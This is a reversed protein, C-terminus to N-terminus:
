EVFAIVGLVLAYAPILYGLARNPLIRVLYPSLISALASGALVSPLLQFDISVGASGLALFAIFGAMSTAGEALSTIAAASKEYVGSYLQGLTIVPGYGGGGIGKNFAAWAAFAIMRKPRYVTRRNGFRRALAAVAMLVVMATVFGKVVSKPLDLALYALTVSTIISIVGTAAIMVSLRTAENWPRRVSFRVNRMEHHVAASLLGTVAESLLLVPVVALPDYGLALLLPALATGFGMGAASDMTEFLFALLIVIPVCTAALQGASWEAPPGAAIGLTTALVVFYAGGILLLKALTSRELRARELFPRADLSRASAGIAVEAAPRSHREREDATCALIADM